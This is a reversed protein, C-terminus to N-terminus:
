SITVPILFEEYILLLAVINTGLDRIKMTTEEQSLLRGYKALQTHDICLCARASEAIMATLTDFDVKLTVLTAM